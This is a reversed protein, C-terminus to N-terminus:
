EVERNNDKIAESARFIAQTIKHKVNDPLLTEEESFPDTPDPGDISFAPSGEGTKLIESDGKLVPDVDTPCLGEPENLTADEHSDTTLNMDASSTLSLCSGNRDVLVSLMVKVDFDLRYAIQDNYIVIDGKKFVVDEGLALKHEKQFVEAMVSWDLDGIIADILEQEGTQIIKQNTIRM